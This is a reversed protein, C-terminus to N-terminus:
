STQSQYSVRRSANILASIAVLEILIVFLPIAVPKTDALYGMFLNGAFGSLGVSLGYTGYAGALSTKSAIDGIAARFVSEELGMVMGWSVISILVLSASKPSIFPLSALVSLLPITWLTKLGIRSYIFGAGLATLADIGMAAAYSYAILSVNIGGRSLVFSLLAWQVIGASLLSVLLIYASLSLHTSIPNESEMTDFKTTSSKNWLYTYALISLSIAAPISLSLFGMRYTHGTMMSLGLYLPGVIAGVQDLAEHIGFARGRGYGVSAEALLADRVPTKLGKGVREAIVLIFVCMWSGAFALLPVSLLNLGYGAFLIAWRSKETKARDGLYGGLGKSLHMLLEGISLAGVIAGSAKFYDMYPGLVSRGGEYTMDAFLSVLGLLIVIRPLRTSM